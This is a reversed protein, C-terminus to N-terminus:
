GGCFVYLNNVSGVGSDNSVLSIEISPVAENTVLATDGPLVDTPLQTSSDNTGVIPILAVSWSAWRRLRKRERREQRKHRPLGFGILVGKNRFPRVDRRHESCQSQVSGNIDTRSKIRRDQRSSGSWYTARVM